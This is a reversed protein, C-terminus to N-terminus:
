MGRSRDPASLAPARFKTTTNGFSGNRSCINPRELMDLILRNMDMPVQAGARVIGAAAPIDM